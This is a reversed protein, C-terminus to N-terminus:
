TKCAKYVVVKKYTAYSDTAPAAWTIRIRLAGAVMLVYGAAVARRLSFRGSRSGDNAAVLEVGRRAM